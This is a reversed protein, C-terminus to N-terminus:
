TLWVALELRPQASFHVPIPVLGISYRYKARSLCVRSCGLKRVKPVEANLKLGRNEPHSGHTSVSDVVRWFTHFLESCLDFVRVAARRAIPTSPALQGRDARDARPRRSRDAIPAIPALPRAAPRPAPRTRALPRSCPCTPSRAEGRDARDARAPHAPPRCAEARPQRPAPPLAPAPASPSALQRPRNPM